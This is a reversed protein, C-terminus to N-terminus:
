PPGEDIHIIEPLEKVSKSPEESDEDNSKAQERVSESTEDREIDGIGSSVSKSNIALVEVDEAVRGASQENTNEAPEEM